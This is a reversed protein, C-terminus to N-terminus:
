PGDGKEETCKKSCCKKSSSPRKIEFEKGCIECKRYHVRDCVTQANSKPIFEKGCLVCIKKKM